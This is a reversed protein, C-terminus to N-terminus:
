AKPKRRLYFFGGIGALLSGVGFMAIGVGNLIQNTISATDSGGGGTTLASNAANADNLANQYHNKAGGYDGSQWSQDGLTRETTAQALQGAANTLGPTTGSLSIARITALAVGVNTIQQSAQFKAQAASIQDNTWIEFPAGGSILCVNGAGNINGSCSSPIQKNQPGDGILLTWTHPIMGTTSLVSLSLTVPSEQNATMTLTNSPGANSANQYATTWDFKVGVTANRQYANTPNDAFLVVNFNITAGSAAIDITQSGTLTPDNYGRLAFGSITASDSALFAHARPTINAPLALGVLLLSICAVIIRKRQM